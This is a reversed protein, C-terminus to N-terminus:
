VLSTSTPSAIDSETNLDGSTHHLATSLAGIYNIALRLTTIKDLRGDPTPYYPVVKRLEDIATNMLKMRKRERCNAKRRRYRSLKRPEPVEMANDGVANADLQSLIMERTTTSRKRFNYSGGTASSQSSTVRGDQDNSTSEHKNNVRHNKSRDILNSSADVSPAMTMINSSKTTILATTRRKSSKIM